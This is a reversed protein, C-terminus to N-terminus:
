PFPIPISCSCVHSNNSAYQTHCFPIYFVSNGIKIRGSLQPKVQYKTTKRHEIAICTFVIYSNGLAQGVSKSMELIYQKCKMYNM